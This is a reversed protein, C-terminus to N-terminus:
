MGIKNQDVRGADAQIPYSVQAREGHSLIRTM